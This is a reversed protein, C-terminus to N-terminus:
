IIPSFEEGSGNMSAMAQDRAAQGGRHHMNNNLIFMCGGELADMVHSWLTNKNPWVKEEGSSNSKPYCYRGTMARRITTCNPSLLFAPEGRDVNQGLFQNVADIRALWGYDPIIEPDFGEEYLVQNCTVGEQQGRQGGGIPDGIVIYKMGAYKNFLRPKVMQQWFRRVDVKEESTAGKYGTTIEDLVRLQGMTTIQMIAVAPTMGHDAGIVLPLARNPELPKKACHKEDNYRPFVPRDHEITGYQNMLYVRIWGRTKGHVMDIWYKKGKPQGAINECKENVRYTYTGSDFKCVVADSADVEGPKTTDGEQEILAPPQKFFSFGHPKQVEALEYYWHDTDPPNTDGIIAGYSCKGFRGSPFRSARATAEDFVQKNPFMSLENFWIITFDTSRLKGIDRVDDCSIFVVEMDVTSGDQEGTRIDIWPWRLHGTPSGNMPRTIPCFDKWNGDAGVREPVWQKWTMMSSNVLDSYTGRVIAHRTYRVGDPAAKQAFSSLFLHMCCMSSKGQGFCGAVFKKESKCQIFDLATQEFKFEPLKYIIPKM